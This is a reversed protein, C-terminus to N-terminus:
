LVVHSRDSKNDKIIVYQIKKIPPAGKVYKDNAEFVKQVGQEFKTMKFPGNGIYTAPTIWDQNEEPKGGATVIDERMPLGNWTGFVSM